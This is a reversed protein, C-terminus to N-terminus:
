RRWKQIMSTSFRKRRFPNFLFASLMERYQLSSLPELYAINFSSLRSLYILISIISVFFGYMGLVASFILVYVRLITVTGTLSQNILTYTSVATLAIVVIMTPSTLGARIAADGIILGGVISITQGIATPMRVGAERLLEFLMLILLAELALPIPLGERSLVVTALLPFPLQDINVSSISLWFGPLCIAIVLGVIRLLRQFIIFYYPFHVDEPSKILLFINSPGVLVMPSGDIVIIFRGRLMSEVAFDPRTIYDFLPFLSFTKNSLWQELQAGSIVSESEFSTLRERVENIVKKDAKDHLYLLSVKTKSLSGLEFQENYLQDTKFRKRILSINTFISETFGDRPGKISVETKSEEPTRQPINAINVSLFYNTGEKYFLLEGSFMRDVMEKKTFLKQIPPLEELSDEKSENELYDLVAQYYHNLQQTDIMGECYFAIVSKINSNHLVKIDAYRSVLTELQNTQLLSKHLLSDMNILEAVNSSM